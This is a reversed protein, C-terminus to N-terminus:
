STAALTKAAGTASSNDRFPVDGNENVAFQPNQIYTRQSEGTGRTVVGGNGDAGCGSIVWNFDPSYPCLKMANNAQDYELLTFNTYVGPQTDPNREVSVLLKNGDTFLKLM